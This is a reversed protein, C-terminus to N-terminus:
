RSIEIMDEVINLWEEEKKHESKKGFIELILTKLEEKWEM